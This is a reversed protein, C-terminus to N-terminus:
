MKKSIRANGRMQKDPILYIWAEHPTNRQLATPQLSDPTTSPTPFLPMNIRVLRGLYM